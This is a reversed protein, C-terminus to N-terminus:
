PKLIKLVAPKSVALGGKVVTIDHIKDFMEEPITVPVKLDIRDDRWDVIQKMENEVARIRLKGIWVTDQETGFNKGYITLDDGPKVESPQIRSITMSSGSAKLTLYGAQSLGMLIVFTPDVDPLILKQVESTHTVTSFVIVLYIGISIWTWLFMQFRGLTPRGDEELMKSYPPRSPTQQKGVAATKVQSMEDQVPEGSDNRFSSIATSVVPVATSIGILSLLYYPVGGEPPGFVGGFIRVFYVFTLAFVAVWTWLLFQFRSLSPDLEPGVRIIDTFKAKSGALIYRAAVTIVVVAIIAILAATVNRLLPNPILPSFPLKVTVKIWATDTQEDNSGLIKIEDSGVFRPFPTYAVTGDSEDIAGLKGNKPEVLVEYSTPRSSDDHLLYITRSGNVDVVMDLDILDIPGKSISDQNDERATKSINEVTATDNTKTLNDTQNVQGDVIRFELTSFSVCLIM